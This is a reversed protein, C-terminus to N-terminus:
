KLHQCMTASYDGFKWVAELLADQGASQQTSLFDDWSEELGPTPRPPSLVRPESEVRLDDTRRDPKNSLAM